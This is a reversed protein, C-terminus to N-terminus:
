DSIPLSFYFTTGEGIETDFWIAGDHKEIITKCISLGLGTGNQARQDSSDEQSFREFVLEHFKLAIGDGFDRVGVTATTDNARVSVIVKGGKPSFKAANSLLNALVQTIRIKDGTVFVKPMPQELQFEVGFEQSYGRNINVGKEIHASLDFREMNFEMTESQLKELDLIDDVLAILQNVNHNAINILETAKSPIKGVVDGVVLGLSGKISTLPTRLEHSVTSIFESKTRELMARETIDQVISWIYENGDAGKLKTGNLLVPVKKGSKHIYHKEYPGYSGTEEMLKLQENEQEEFSRPTLDWYTLSKAEEQTYGIINLYAQNCEVLSGDMECLAFGVRSAEFISRYKEESEKLDATRELVRQSLLAREDELDSVAQQRKKNAIGLNIILTMLVMLTVVILAIEWTYQELLTPEYFRVEGRDMLGDESIRWRKIQRWDYYYGFTSSANEPPPQGHFTAIVTQAVMEGVREGSLLYGGVVGTGLLVEWHTFIPAQAKEAIRKVAAYPTLSQDHGDSFVLTYFIASGKPLSAVKDLLEDMSLNTLYEVEFGFNSAAIAAKFNQQRKKQGSTRADGIVYVKKPSVLRNMEAIATGFDFGISVSTVDQLKFGREVFIRKAGPLVDDHALLYQAAPRGESVIIDVGENSYKSILYDSFAPLHDKNPFRGVDLYEYFVDVKEGSTQFGAQLGTEFASQWRGKQFWSSLVLLKVPADVAVAPRPLFLLSGGIVLLLSLFAVKRSAKSAFQLM